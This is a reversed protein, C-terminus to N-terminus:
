RVLVMPSVGSTLGGGRSAGSFWGDAPLPWHFRLGGSRIFGFRRGHPCLSHGSSPTLGGGLAFLSLLVSGVSAATSQQLVDMMCATPVTALSIMTEVWQFFIMYDFISIEGVLLSCLFM